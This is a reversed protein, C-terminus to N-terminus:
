LTFVEAYMDPADPPGLVLLLMRPAFGLLQRMAQRDTDSPASSGQHVHWFGVHSVLGRSQDRRAKLAEQTGPFNLELGLQSVASGRPPGTVV